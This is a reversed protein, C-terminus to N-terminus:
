CVEALKSKLESRPLIYGGMELNERVSLSPFVNDVQPVYSIGARLLGEPPRGTVDNGNLVVKGASVQLVGAIARLLTSKGAGNLGVIVTIERPRARLDVGIVIPPGGYGASLGEIVLIADPMPPRRSPQMLAWIPM